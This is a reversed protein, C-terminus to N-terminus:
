EHEGDDRRASRNKFVKPNKVAATYTAVTIAAAAILVTHGIISAALITYSGIAVAFAVAWMFGLVQLVYHRTAVDPIHRLPSVEADFIFNWANVIIQRM